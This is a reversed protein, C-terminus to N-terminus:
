HPPFFGYREGFRILDKNHTFHIENARKSVDFPPRRNEIIIIQVRQLYPLDALAEYFRDQVNDPAREASSIHTNPDHEKYSVLPSDLVLFRPHNLRNKVCHQLLGIMFASFYLARYGKGASARSAGDIEIDYKDPDFTVRQCQMGWSNLLEKINKCFESHYDIPIMTEPATEPSEYLMRDYRDHSKQLEEIQAEILTAKAREDRLALFNQLKESNIQHIPRVKDSIYKDASQFESMKLDFLKKIQEMKKSVDDITLELEAQKSTIKSYEAQISLTFDENEEEYPELLKKDILSNCLPCNVEKVQDIGYKGENIFELRKLDSSYARTLLEFRKKLEQHHILETKLRTVESWIAERNQEQKQLEKYTGEIASILKAIQVNIEENTLGESKKNLALLEDKKVEIDKEILEIKGKTRSRGVEPNELQPLDSDDKGTLLFKFLSKNETESQYPLGPFIPSRDTIIRQETVLLLNAFDRFSLPNTGNFRTEKLKKGNIELMSLLYTSINDTKQSHRISLPIHDQKEFDEFACEAMFILNDNFYRCITITKGELFRIEAQVKQYNNAEPIEKPPDKAGLVFNMCELIYSKGTQSSGSIINLGKDLNIEATPKNEGM